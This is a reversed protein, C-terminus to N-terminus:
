KVPTLIKIISEMVKPMIEENIRKALDEDKLYKSTGSIHCGGRGFMDASDKLTYFRKFLESLEWGESKSFAQEKLIPESGNFATFWESMFKDAHQHSSHHRDTIKNDTFGQIYGFGWYWGCDWKEQELYYADGDSDKGLFYLKEGHFTKIQKNM